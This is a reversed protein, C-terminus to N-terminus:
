TSEKLELTYADFKKTSQVTAPYDTAAAYVYLNDIPCEAAAEADTRGIAFKYKTQLQEAINVATGVAYPVIITQPTMPAVTPTCLAPLTVSVPYKATV